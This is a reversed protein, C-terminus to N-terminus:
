GSEATTAQNAVETIIHDDLSLFITSHTKEEMVSLQEDTLGDESGATTSKPALTRWIQQQKLLAKM